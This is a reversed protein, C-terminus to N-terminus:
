HDGVTFDRCSIAMAFHDCTVNTSFLAWKVLQWIAIDAQKVPGPLAESLMGPSLM